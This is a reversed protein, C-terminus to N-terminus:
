YKATVKGLLHRLFGVRTIEISRERSLRPQSCESRCWERRDDSDGASAFGSVAWEGYRSPSVIGSEVVVAVPTVHSINCIGSGPRGGVLGGTDIGVCVANSEGLSEGREISGIAVDVSLEYYGRGVISSLQSAYSDVIPRGNFARDLERAVGLDHERWRSGISIVRRESIEKDLGLPEPM